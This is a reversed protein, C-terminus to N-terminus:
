DLLTRRLEYVVTMDSGQGNVFVNNILWESSLQTNLYTDWGETWNADGIAKYVANFPSTCCTGVDWFKVAYYKM